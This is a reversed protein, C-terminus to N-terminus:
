HKLSITIPAPQVYTSVLNAIKKGDSHTTSGMIWKGGVSDTSRFLVRDPSHASSSCGWWKARSQMCNLMCLTTKKVPTSSSALVYLEFLLIVM